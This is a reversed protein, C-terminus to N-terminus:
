SPHPDPMKELQPDPDIYTDESFKIGTPPFKKPFKLYIKRKGKNMNDQPGTLFLLIRKM